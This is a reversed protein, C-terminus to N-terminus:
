RRSRRWERLAPRCSRARRSTCCWLCVSEPPEPTLEAHSRRSTRLFSGAERKVASFVAHQGDASMTVAVVEYVTEGPLYADLHETPDTLERRRPSAAILHDFLRRTGYRAIVVGSRADWLYVYRDRCSTTLHSGTGSLACSDVPARHRVPLVVMEGSDVIWMSCRGDIGAALLCSGDETFALSRVMPPSAITRLVRATEVDHIKVTDEAGASACRRGDPSYALALV